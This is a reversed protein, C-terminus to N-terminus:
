DVRIPLTGILPLVTLNIPYNWPGIVFVIGKPEKISMSKGPQLKLPHTVQVFHLLFIFGLM